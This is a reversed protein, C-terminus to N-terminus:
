SRGQVGFLPKLEMFTRNFTAFSGQKQKQNQHKLEMFTRNFSTIHKEVRQRIILKLEM